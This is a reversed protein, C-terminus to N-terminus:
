GHKPVPAYVFRFMEDMKPDNLASEGDIGIMIKTMIDALLMEMKLTM